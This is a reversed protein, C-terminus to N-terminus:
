HYIPPRKKRSLSKMVRAQARTHMKRLRALLHSDSGVDKALERIAAEGPYYQDTLFAELEERERTKKRM